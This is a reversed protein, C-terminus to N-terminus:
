AHNAWPPLVTNRVTVREGRERALSLIRRFELAPVAVPVDGASLAAAGAAQAHDDVAEVAQQYEGPLEAERGWFMRAGYFGFFRASLNARLMM